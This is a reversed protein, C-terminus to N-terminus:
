ILTKWYYWFHEALLGFILVYWAILIDGHRRLIYAKPRQSLKLYGKELNYLTTYWLIPPMIMWVVFCYPCIVNIRFVGQFFLYYAFITGALTGTNISLWVWKKFTAGGRLIIGLAILVSFGMLGFIPNPIGLLSSQEEAMLPGCSLIPNINCSPQYAPNKLVQLKDYTLVFAAIM